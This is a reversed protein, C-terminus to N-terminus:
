PAAPAPAGPRGPAPKAGPPPDAPVKALRDLIPRAGLQALTSHAADVAARVEAGTREAEPLLGAMDTVALAEDFAAGLEQWGHLAERYGALAEAPRGEDQRGAGRLRMM